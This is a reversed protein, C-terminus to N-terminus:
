TKINGSKENCFALESYGTPFFFFFFLFLPFSSICLIAVDAWVERDRVEDDGVAMRYRGLDGLCEICTDEFAPMTEYLLAMIVLIHLILSTGCRLLCRINLQWDDSLPPPHHINLLSFSIMTSM